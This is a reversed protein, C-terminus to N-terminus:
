GAFYWWVAFFLPHLLCRLADLFASPAREASLVLVSREQWVLELLRTLPEPGLSLVISRWAAEDDLARLGISVSGFTM